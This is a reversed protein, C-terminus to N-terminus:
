KTERELIEIKDEVVIAADNLANRKALLILDDAGEPYIDRLEIIEAYCARIIIAIRARVHEDFEARLRQYKCMTDIAVQLSEAMIGYSELDKWTDDHFKQYDAQLTKLNELSDDITM